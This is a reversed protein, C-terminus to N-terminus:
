LEIEACEVWWDESLTPTSSPQSCGGGQLLPPDNVLCRGVLGLKGASTERPVWPSPTKGILTRLPRTVSPTCPHQHRLTGVELHTSAPIWPEGPAKATGGLKCSIEGVQVCPCEASLSSSDSPPHEGTPHYNNYNSDPSGSSDRRPTPWYDDQGDQVQDDVIDGDPAADGEGEDGEEDDPNNGDNQIAPSGPPTSWDQYAVVRVRVLYRLGRLAQEGGVRGAQQLPEPIFILRELPIFSPHWCWAVVFFERDDDEPRDWIPTTQIDACAPGLVVQAVELNRAHLPVRSLALVARYRFLGAAALSTRRWPRWILPLTGGAGSTLVRDRDEPNRLRVVFDEPHHRRVEFDMARFGFRAVLHSIVEVTSVEPRNGGVMATLASGLDDEAADIDATRPVVVLSTRAGDSGGLAPQPTVVLSVPIHRRVM